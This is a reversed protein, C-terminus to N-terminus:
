PARRVHRARSGPPGDIGTGSVGDLSVWRCPHTAPTRAPEGRAGAPSSWRVPRHPPRSGGPAHGGGCPYGPTSAVALGTIREWAPNLYIWRGEPDTRFLVEDVTDAVSQLTDASERVAPDARRRVPMAIFVWLAFAGVVSQISADVLAEMWSSSAPVVFPLLLTTLLEACFIAAVVFILGRRM